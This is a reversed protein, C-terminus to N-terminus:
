GPSTRQRGWRTPRTGRRSLNRAVRVRRRSVYTPRTGRLSRHGAVRVRWDAGDGQDARAADALGEDAVERPAAGRPARQRLDGTVGLGHEDADAVIALKAIQDHVPQNIEQRGAGDERNKRRDIG